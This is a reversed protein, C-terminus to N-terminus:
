RRFVAMTYLGEMGNADVLQLVIRGALTNESWELELSSTRVNWGDMFEVSSDLTSGFADLQTTRVTLLHGGNATTGVIGALPISDVWGDETSLRFECDTEIRSVCRPHCSTMGLCTFSELSRVDDDCTRELRVGTLGPPPTMAVPATGTSVWELELEVPLTDLAALEVGPDAPELSGECREIADLAVVVPDGAKSGDTSTCAVEGCFSAGILVALSRNMSVTTARSM